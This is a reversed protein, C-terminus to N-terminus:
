SLGHPKARVDDRHGFHAAGPTEEHSCYGAAAAWISQLPMFALLLILLLRRM